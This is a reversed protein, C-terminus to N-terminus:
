KTLIVCSRFPSVMLESTIINDDFIVAVIKSKLQTVYSDETTSIDLWYISNIVCNVNEAKSIIGGINLINPKKLIQIYEKISQDYNDSISIRKQYSYDLLISLIKHQENVDLSQFKNM